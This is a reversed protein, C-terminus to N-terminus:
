MSVMNSVDLAQSRASFIHTAKELCLPITVRITPKLLLMGFSHLHSHMHPRCICNLYTTMRSYPPDENWLDKSISLCSFLSLSPALLSLSPSWLSAPLLWLFDPAELLWQFGPSLHPVSRGASSKSPVLWGQRCRSKWWWGGSFVSFYMETKWAVV